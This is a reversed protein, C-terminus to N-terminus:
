HAANIILNLVVQNIEGIMCVVLPLDPDLDLDLESVYKWENRSVTATSRMSENLDAPAMVAAGPHAFQKVSRVITSIREVGELTQAIAGPVEAELYDIDHEIMFAAMAELDSVTPPQASATQLFERVRGCVALINEFASKIFQVNNGVYQAPTNIEHAIGAALQGIAELKQSQLLQSELHKRRTTDLILLWKEVAAGNPGLQFVPTVLSFVKVGKSNLWAVEFESDDGNPAGEWACLKERMRVDAMHLAIDQGIVEEYTRDLMNLFHGNSYIIAGAPTIQVLGQAMTEILGRFQEESRHLRNQAELANKTVIFRHLKWIGMSGLLMSISLGFVLLAIARIRENMADEVESLAIKTVMSWSHDPLTTLAAVVPIGQSDVGRVIGHQGLAAKVPVMDLRELPMTVSMAANDILRMSSLIRVVRGEQRVIITGGTESSAPWKRILPFIYTEALMPLAVYGIAAGGHARDFIAYAVACYIQGDHEDKFLDLFRVGHSTNEALLMDRFTASTPVEQHSTTVVPRGSADFLTISDYEGYARFNLHLWKEVTQRATEDNRHLLLREAAKALVPNMQLAKANELREKRWQVLESKKLESIAELQNVVSQYYADTIGQTHHFGILVTFFSFTLLLAM